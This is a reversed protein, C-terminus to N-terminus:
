AAALAWIDGPIGPAKKAGPPAPGNTHPSCGVRRHGNLLDLLVDDFSSERFAPNTGFRRSGAGALLYRNHAGAGGTQSRRLLETSRTMFHRDVFFGISDAPQQAVANGM